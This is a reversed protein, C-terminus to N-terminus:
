LHHSFPILNALLMLEKEIEDGNRVVIWYRPLFSAWISRKPPCVRDKYNKDVLLRRTACLLSSASSSSVAAPVLLGESGHYTRPTGIEVRGGQRLKKITYVSVYM